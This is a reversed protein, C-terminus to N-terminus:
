ESTVVLITTDDFQEVGDSWEAITNSLLDCVTKASVGKPVSRCWALLRQEGFDEGHRDLADTVGDTYVLLASGKPLIVSLEQYKIDPLLGVPPDGETLVVPERAESILIPPSHGANVYRLEDCGCEFQGYFMTVYRNAGFRGKLDRNLATAFADPSPRSARHLPLLRGHALAQLHAMMLAASVGKGSVDACLLGVETDSFPLFDYLDGSVVRAPRTIGCVTAQRLNPAVRPYLYQQVEQALSIDRELVATHKEQERLKELDSTMRNFSAALIGLQDQEPVTVRLSFDGKGVRLAARSLGDIAAVIRQSLRVSLLFGILYVLIVAIGIATLVWVWSATQMGMRSLDQVTRSYSPRLRCVAWDELLGTQWNRAVVVVAEPLQSGPVFNAEIVRSVKEHTQHRHMMRRDSSYIQLGAGIAIDQLLSRSLPVRVVVTVSCGAREARRLSRIELRGRDVVIGAFSPVDLWALRDEVGAGKRVISVLAQAQPWVAGPYVAFLPSNPAPQQCGEVHDLLSPTLRNCADVIGKIREEILYTSERRIVVNLVAVSFSAVLVTSVVSFFAFIVLM